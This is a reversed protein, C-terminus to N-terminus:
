LPLQRARFVLRGVFTDSGTSCTYCISKCTGDGKYPVAIYIGAAGAANSGDLGKFFLDGITNTSIYNQATADTTAVMAGVCFRGTTTLSYADIFGDADYGTETSMGIGVEITEGSDATDIMLWMENPDIYCGIPLDYGTDTETNSNYVLPLVVWDSDVHTSRKMTTAM